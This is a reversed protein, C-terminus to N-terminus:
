DDFRWDFEVTHSDYGIWQGVDGEDPLIGRLESWFIERGEVVAEEIDGMEAIEEDTLADRTNRETPYDVSNRFGRDTGELILMESRIHIPKPDWESNYHRGQKSEYYEVGMTAEFPPYLRLVFTTDQRKYEYDPDLYNRKLTKKFTDWPIVITDVKTLPTSQQM